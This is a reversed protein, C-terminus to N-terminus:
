QTELSSPYAQLRARLKDILVTLWDPHGLEPDLDLTRAIKAYQLLRALRSFIQLQETADPPLAVYQSYGAM